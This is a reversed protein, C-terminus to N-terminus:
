GLLLWAVVAVVAVEAVHELVLTMMVVEVGNLVVGAVVV